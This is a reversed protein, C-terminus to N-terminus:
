QDAATPDFSVFSDSYAFQINPASYQPNGSYSSNKRATKTKKFDEIRKEDVLQQLLRIAESLGKFVLALILSVVISVSFYIFNLESAFKYCVIGLIIGLAVVGISCVNLISAIKNRASGKLGASAEVLAEYEDDTVILPVGKKKGKNGTLGWSLLDEDKKKYYEEKQQQKLQQIKSEVQELM